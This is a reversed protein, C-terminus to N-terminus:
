GTRPALEGSYAAYAADSEWVRVTLGELGRGALRPAVWGFLHQAVVEATPNPQALETLENLDHGDLATVVSAVADQLVSIDFLTGDAQLRRGEVTAEVRYTHEHPESAPGFDGVLHHRATFRAVVGVAYTM